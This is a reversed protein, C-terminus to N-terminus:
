KSAEFVFSQVTQGPKNSGHTASDNAAYALFWGRFQLPNKVSILERYLTILIKMIFANEKYSKKISFAAHFHVFYQHPLLWERLQWWIELLRYFM